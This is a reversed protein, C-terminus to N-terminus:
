PSENLRAHEQMEAEIFAAIMARYVQETIGPNAGVKAIVQAVRAPAQADGGTKKFREALLPVIQRDLRDIEARVEELSNRTQTM